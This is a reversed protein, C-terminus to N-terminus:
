GWGPTQPNLFGALWKPHRQFGTFLPIEVVLRLQHLRRIESGDVTHGPKSFWKM